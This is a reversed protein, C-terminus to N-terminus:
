PGSFSVLYLLRGSDDEIGRIERLAVGIPPKGAIILPEIRRGRGKRAIM